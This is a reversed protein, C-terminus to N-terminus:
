KKLKTGKKKKLKRKKNLFNKKKEITRLKEINNEYFEKYNYITKLYLKKINKNIDEDNILFNIRNELKSINANIEKYIKNKILHFCLEIANFTSKYPVNFLIRIKEDKAYKKIDKSCHYTANDLILISRDMEKKSITNRLDKLFALFEKSTVTENKYYHALLIEKKNIALILNIRKKLNNEPGGLIEEGNKRWMKLNSNELQFGCEDIFIINLKSEIARIIGIIFGYSMLIYKDKQLKPNKIITKRYHMGLHFRLVRSITMISIDQNFLEKYKNKIYSLSISKELNYEEMIRKIRTAYFSKSKDMEKLNILKSYFEPLIELQNIKESYTIEKNINNIENNLINLDINSPFKKNKLAQKLNDLQKIIQINFYNNQSINFVNFIEDLILNNEFDKEM